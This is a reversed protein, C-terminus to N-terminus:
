REWGQEGLQRKMEAVDRLQVMLTGNTTTGNLGMYTHGGTDNFRVVQMGDHIMPTLEISRKEGDSLVVDRQYSGVFTEGFVFNQKIENISVMFEKKSMDPESPSTNAIASPLNAALLGAAFGTAILLAAKLISLNM